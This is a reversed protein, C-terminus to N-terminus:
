NFSYRLRVQDMELFPGLAAESAVTYTFTAVVRVFADRELPGTNLDLAIDGFTGTGRDFVDIVTSGGAFSVRSVGFISTETLLDPAQPNLRDPRASSMFVDISQGPNSLGIIDGPEFPLFTPNPVGVSYLETIANAGGFRNPDFGRISLIGSAFNDYNNVGTAIGPNIGFIVGDADMLFIFGRGGSGGGNCSNCQGAYGSDPVPRPGGAGGTADLMGGTLDLGAGSIISLTGGSGGGGGGTSVTWVNTTWSWFDGTGGDGGSVDIRGTVSVSGAALIELFGGGGGGGGGSGVANQANSWGNMAGGAGGGSGGTGDLAERDGYTPGPAGRVGIVGSNALGWRSCKGFTGIPSGVAGGTGGNFRDEGFTGATGHSAGGGGTGSPSGINVSDQQNIQWAEGGANGRGPGAGKFSNPFTNPRGGSANIWTDLSNCGGFSTTTGVRRGPRSMGGDFGGPGGVGGNARLGIGGTPASAPMSSADGAAGSADIAGDIQILGISLLRAPNVGVIKLTTGAGVVLSNFDFETAIPPDITRVGATPLGSTNKYLDTPDVDVVDFPNGLSENLTDGTDLTTDTSIVLDGGTGGGFAGVVGVAKGPSEPNNYRATNFFDELLTTQGGEPRIGDQLPDYTLTRTGVISPRNRVLFETTYGLGGPEPFAGGVAGALVTQGDGTLGNEGIFTKRFDLGLINGSLTLRYRTDDVLRVLPTVVISATITGDLGVGQELRVSIPVPFDVQDGFYGPSAAPPAADGSETANAFIEFLEVTRNTVTSPDIPESLRIRLVNPTPELIVGAAILENSDMAGLERTRPDLRSVDVIGGTDVDESVVDLVRPPDAPAFDEFFNATDFFANDPNRIPSGSAARLADPGAKITVQYSTDSRFGADSRDAVTPLRPVFTVRNGSVVYAGIALSFNSGTPGVNVSSIKLREFFDQGVLVSGSFVFDLPRNRPVGNQGRELFEVLRFDGDGSGTGSGGGSCGFTLSACVLGLVSCLRTRSM